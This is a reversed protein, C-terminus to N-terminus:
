VFIRLSALSEKRKQPVLNFCGGTRSEFDVSAFSCCQKYSGRLEISFLILNLFYPVTQYFLAKNLM